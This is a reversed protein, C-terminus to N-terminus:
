DAHPFACFVWDCHRLRCPTYYGSYLAQMDDFRTPNDPDSTESVWAQQLNNVIEVRIFQAHHPVGLVNVTRLMFGESLEKDTPAITGALELPRNSM